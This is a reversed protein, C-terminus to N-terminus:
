TELIELIHLEELTELVELIKLSSRWSTVEHDPQMRSQVELSGRCHEEEEPAPPMLGCAWLTDSLRGRKGEVWCGM